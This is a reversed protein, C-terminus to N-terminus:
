LCTPWWGESEPVPCKKGASVYGSGPERLEARTINLNVM